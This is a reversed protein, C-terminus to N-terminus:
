GATKALTQERKRRELVLVAVVIGVAAVALGTYMYLLWPPISCFLLICPSTSITIM